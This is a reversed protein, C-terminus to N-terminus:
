LVLASFLGSSVTHRFCTSVLAAAEAEPREALSAQVRELSAQLTEGAALAEVLTLM